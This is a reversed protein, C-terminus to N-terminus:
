NSGAPEGTAARLGEEAVRSNPNVSLAHRFAQAAEENRGLVLLLQGLSTASPTHRPALRLASAYAEAARELDGQRKFLIGMGHQIAYDLPEIEAAIRYVEVADANRALRALVKALEVHIRAHEPDGQLVLAERLEAEALELLRTPDDQGKADRSYAVGLNYHGLSSTEPRVPLGVADALRYSWTDIRARVPLNVFLAFLCLLATAISAAALGGSREIVSRWRRALEVAAYGALVFLAPAIVMRFRSFVFFAIVSVSYAAIFVLLLRPWGTRRWALVCGLLALPALLGYGPVPLRLVPARERYLYYDLSDPVEYAGWFSRVKSWLLRSWDGPQERIWKTSEAFWFASVERDTMEARGSRRLAERAFDRQEYKPNAAVFPLQQYEGSDNTPNNGIYFNAGSNATTLIWEGGVAYNHAAPLVLVMLMGAVLSGAEVWRRRAGLGAERRLGIWMALLPVVLLLNGRTLCALGWV